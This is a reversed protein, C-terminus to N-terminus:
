EFNICIVGCYVADNDIFSETYVRWLLRTDYSVTENNSQTLSNNGGGDGWNDDLTNYVPYVNCQNDLDWTANNDMYFSVGALYCLDWNGLDKTNANDETACTRFYKYTKKTKLGNKAEFVGAHTIRALETYSSAGTALNFSIFSPSYGASTYIATNGGPAQALGYRDNDGYYAEIGAYTNKADDWRIVGTNTVRVLENNSNGMIVNNTSSGAFLWLDNSSYVGPKDWAAGLRVEGITNEANMISIGSAGYWMQDDGAGIVHLKQSPANTGIGVNGNQLITLRDTGAATTLFHFDGYERFIMQNVSRNFHIMHNDDLARIKGNDEFFLEYGDDLRVDGGSIHLKDEPNNTGIGVFGDDRVFLASTGNDQIDFDGTGNLNYTMNYAGQAITTAQTLTGGLRVINPATETLGNEFVFLDNPNTWTPAAAGNTKLIQGSTGSALNVWNTGDFYMLSGNAEATITIDTGDVSNDQITTVGANSITVDGSMTQETPVNSANGIWIKGDNLVAQVPNGTAVKNWTTGWYYFGAGYGGITSPNTNYVIMGPTTTGGSLGFTNVNSISVRPILLGKDTSSIDLKASADPTNTGIGVNQAFILTFNILFLLTILRKM